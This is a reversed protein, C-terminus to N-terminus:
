KAARDRALTEQMAPAARSKTARALLVALRYAPENEPISGPAGAEIAVIGRFTERDATALFFAMAGGSDQGIIAVRTPDIPYTQSLQALLGIVLKAERLQWRSAQSAKPALLILDHQNCLPKWQAFLDNEKLGGSGHMWVVVGYPVAPDYNEPVYAWAENAFELSQLRVVGSAPRKTADPRHAEHGPPIDKPPIAEPLTALAVEVTQRTQGRAYTVAVSDGPQREALRARWSEAQTIAEGALALLVDGPRIGTKAAPSGPYVWRVRVGEPKAPASAPRMPLVGLFPHEYPPLRDVLTVEKELRKGDRLVALKLTDGAYRRSLEQKVQAALAIPRGEIEVIRDGAKLGAEQAPSRPRCGSLVPEALFLARGAFRVGIQGPLLDKGQQLRPLLEKVKELPIAFGIGSDYWEYGALESTTEPSLPVLVGLVRGHLDV